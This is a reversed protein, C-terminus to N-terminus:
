YSVCFSFFGGKVSSLITCKLDEYAVTSHLNYVDVERKFFQFQELVKSKKKLETKPKIAELVLTISLLFELKTRSTGDNERIIAIQHISGDEQSVSGFIADKPGSPIFFLDYKNKKFIEVEAIMLEPRIKKAMENFYFRFENLSPRISILRAM